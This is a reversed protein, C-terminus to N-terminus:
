VPEKLLAWMRKKEHYDYFESRVGDKDALWDKVAQDNGWCARPAVNIMWKAIDVLHQKNIYDAHCVAAVFDNRLVAYMFSGPPYGRLIYDEFAAKTHDPVDNSSYSWDLWLDKM